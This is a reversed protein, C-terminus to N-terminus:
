DGQRVLGDSRAETGELNFNKEDALHLLSAFALPISLSQPMLPPRGKQLDQTLRCLM